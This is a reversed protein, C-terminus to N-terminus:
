LLAFSGTLTPEADRKLMAKEQMHLIHAFVSRAAAGRLTTPLDPYMRPVMEAIHGVGDKLCAVIQAERQLRHEIFASVFPKPNDIAPGHAPLFVRDDRELLMRLSNLYEGMDGDPPSVVSTSWGMVHDGTLLAREGQVQFCLHNSCHGPTHVCEVSWGDGEVLDGHRLATDPVFKMDGGAEVKAGREFRGEGHPGFGYTTAGTRERLLRTAPSHDMHTHTVLQHTIREDKLASMVADIHEVLAPGPDVIAVNGRGIVYTGTGHYTFASPNRAVIRRIMPSLTHAIGYEVPAEHRYAIAMAEACAMGCARAAHSATAM